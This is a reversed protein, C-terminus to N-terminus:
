IRLRTSFVNLAPPSTLDTRDGLHHNITFRTNLPLQAFVIFVAHVPQPDTPRMRQLPLNAAKACPQSHCLGMSRSVHLTAIDHRGLESESQHHAMGDMQDPMQESEGARTGKIKTGKSECNSPIQNLTCSLDCATASVSVFLVLASVFAASTTRIRM